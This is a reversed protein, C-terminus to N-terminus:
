FGPGQGLRVGWTKGGQFRVIDGRSVTGNTPGYISHPEFIHDPGRCKLVYALDTMYFNVKRFAKFSTYDYPWYGIPEGFPDKPITTIYSVPTTLVKLEWRNQERSGYEPFPPVDETEWRCLYYYPYANNDVAYAEIAVELSKMEAAAQSVKSRTQAELFNPVAILALIAIIAVVILLEILTFGDRKARNRM